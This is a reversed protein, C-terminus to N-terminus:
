LYVGSDLLEKIMEQEESLCPIESCDVNATKTFGSCQSLSLNLYCPKGYKHEYYTPYYANPYEIVIMIHKNMAGEIYGSPSTSSEYDYTPVNNPAEAIGRATTVAGGVAFAMNAGAIGVATTAIGGAIKLTSGITNRVASSVAQTHHDSTVPVDIGCNGDFCWRETDNVSIVCRCSGDVFDVIYKFNLRKVSSKLGVEARAVRSIVESAPLEIWRIYPLWVKVRAYKIDVFNGYLAEITYSGIDFTKIPTVDYGQGIQIERNALYLVDTAVGTVTFPIRKSSIISKLPDITNSKFVENWNTTWMTKNVEGFANDSINYTKLGKGFKAIDDSGKADDEEDDKYPYGDDIINKLEDLSIAKFLVILSEGTAENTFKYGDGYITKSLQTSPGGPYESWYVNGLKVNVKSASDPILYVRFTGSHNSEYNYYGEAESFVSTDGFLFQSVGNMGSSKLASIDENYTITMAGQSQRSKYTSPLSTDFHTFEEVDKALYTTYSGVLDANAEIYQRNSSTVSVKTTNKDVASINMVFNTAFDTVEEVKPLNPDFPDIAGSDDGTKLFKVIDDVQSIDFVPMWNPKRDIKVIQRGYAWSIAQSPLIDIIPHTELVSDTACDLGMWTAGFGDYIAVLSASDEVSMGNRSGADVFDARSHPRISSNVGFTFHGDTGPVTRDYESNLYDNVINYHHTLSHYTLLSPSKGEISVGDLGTTNSLILWGDTTYASTWKSISSKYRVLCVHTNNNPLTLKAGYRISSVSGRATDWDRTNYIIDRAWYITAVFDDTEESTDSIVPFSPIVPDNYSYFRGPTNEYWSLKFTNSFMKKLDEITMTTTDVYTAM